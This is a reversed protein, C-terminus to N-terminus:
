TQVPLGEPQPRIDIREADAPVKQFKLKQQLYNPDSAFARAALHEFGDLFPKGRVRREADIHGEM